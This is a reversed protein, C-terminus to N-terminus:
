QGVRTLSGLNLVFDGDKKEPVPRHRPGDPQPGNARMTEFQVRWPPPDQQSLEEIERHRQKVRRSSAIPSVYFRNQQDSRCQASPELPDIAGPTSGVPGLSAPAGRKTARSRGRAFAGRLVRPARFCAHSSSAMRPWHMRLRRSARVAYKRDFVCLPGPLPVVGAMSSTNIM